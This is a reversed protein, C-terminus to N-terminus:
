KDLYNLKAKPISMDKIIAKLGLLLLDEMKVFILFGLFYVRSGV